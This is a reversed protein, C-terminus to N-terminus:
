QSIWDIEKKLLHLTQEEKSAKEIPYEYTWKVEPPMSVLISETRGNTDLGFKTGKDMVLNFEVYRGRRHLQWDKEQASYNRSSNQEMIDCYLPAFLNGIEMVFDFLQKKSQGNAGNLHDFFIGGIGRTEKRFPLYFYDDAWAKFNSYYEADYKDCVEKLKQHFYKAQKRDIYIPTLDIGGGFWYSGDPLEFYRVNMHIIPVHPNEPHMILSVGTAFFEDEQLQLKQKIKEPLQGHVASFNVGGKEIINGGQIVRSRGGGGGERKWNNETFKAKGDTNEISKTIRDQLKKFAEAIQNKQM